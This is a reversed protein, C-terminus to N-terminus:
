IVQEGGRLMKRMKELTKKLLRSVKKQSLGLDLAIQTQTLDKYFFLYIIKKEIKQLKEITNELVIRDEIPLKFTEYRISHIKKLIVRDGLTESVQNLSLVKQFKFMEIIGDESINMGEAIERITPLRGEKHIFSEIFKNVDNSLKKLWRPKKISSSKDRIHHRIEGMICHTAYTFFKVGRDPDFNDVAKILGIYGVQILDEINEGSSLYKKAIPYVIYTQESIIKKRLKEDKTKRLIRFLDHLKEEDAYKGKNQHENSFNNM